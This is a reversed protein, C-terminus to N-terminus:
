QLKTFVSETAYVTRGGYNVEITVHRMNTTCLSTDLCYRTMVEYERGDVVVSDPGVDGTDPMTTPDVRRTAELLEQAAAMAGSREENRTTVDMFQLFAPMIGALIIGLIAMAVLGELLSFGRESV